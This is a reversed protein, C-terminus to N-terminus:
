IDFLCHQFVVHSARHFVVNKRFVLSLFFTHPTIHSGVVLHLMLRLNLARSQSGTHSITDFNHGLRILEVDLYIHCIDLM